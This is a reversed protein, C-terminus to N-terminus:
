LVRGFEDKPLDGKGQGMLKLRYSNVKKAIEEKSYRFLHLINKKKSFFSVDVIILDYNGGVGLCKFM